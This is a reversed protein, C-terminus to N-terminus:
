QDIQQYGIPKRCKYIKRAIIAGGVLTVFFGGIIGIVLGQTAISKAPRFAYNCALSTNLITMGVGFAKDIAAQCAPTITGSFANCCQEIVNSFRSQEGAFHVVDGWFSYEFGLLGGYIARENTAAWNIGDLFTCINGFVM